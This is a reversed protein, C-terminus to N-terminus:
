HAATFGEASAKIKTTWCIWMYVLLHVLANSILQHLYIYFLHLIDMVVPDLEFCLSAFLLDRFIVVKNDEPKPIVKSGPARASIVMKKDQLMIISEPSM